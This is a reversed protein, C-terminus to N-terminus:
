YSLDEGCLECTITTAVVPEGCAPCQEYDHLPDGDLSPNAQFKAEQMHCLGRTLKIVAFTLIIFAPSTIMDFQASEIEHGRRESYSSFRNLLINIIWFGWWVGVISRRKESERPDRHDSAQWIEVMTRYPRFLNLFPVFYWGVCWGPSTNILDPSLAHANQAALDSFHGDDGLLQAQDLQTMFFLAIVFGCYAVLTLLFFCTVVNTLVRTSRYDYNKM